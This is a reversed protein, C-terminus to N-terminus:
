IKLCVVCSLYELRSLSASIFVEQELYVGRTMLRVACIVRRICTHVRVSPSATLLQVDLYFSILRKPISIPWRATLGCWRYYGETIEAPTDLM